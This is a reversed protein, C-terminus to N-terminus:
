TVKKHCSPCKEYYVREENKIKTVMGSVFFVDKQEIGEFFDDRSVEENIEQILKVNSQKSRQNEEENVERALPRETLYELRSRLEALNQERFWSKLKSITPNSDLHTFIKTQQDSSNLSKGQYDSVKANKIGIVDGEQIGDYKECIEDGWLTFQIATLQDDVLWMTRKAKTQGNKFNITAKEGRELVVAAVDISKVQRANGLPQFSLNDKCISGNDQVEVIITSDGFYITYDNNIQSFRRNAM